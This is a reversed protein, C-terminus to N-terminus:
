LLVLEKQKSQPVFGANISSYILVHSSVREFAVLPLIKQTLGGSIHKKGFFIGIRLLL